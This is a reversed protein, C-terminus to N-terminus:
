YTLFCSKVIGNTDNHILLIESRPDAKTIWSDYEKEAVKMTKCPIRTHRGNPKKIVVAFSLM